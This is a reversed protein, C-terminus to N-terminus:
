FAELNWDNKGNWSLNRPINNRSFINNKEAASIPSLTRFTTNVFTNKYMCNSCLWHFHELHIYIYIYIHTHTHTDEPHELNASLVNEWTRFLPKFFNSVHHDLYLDKLVPHGPDGLHVLAMRRNWFPFFPTAEPSGWRSLFYSSLAVGWAVCRRVLGAVHIHIYTHTFFLLIYKYIISFITTYIFSCIYIYMNLYRRAIHVNYNNFTVFIPRMERDNQFDRPYWNQCSNWRKKESLRIKVYRRFEKQTAFIKAYRRVIMVNWGHCNKHCMKKSMCYTRGIERVNIRCIGVTHKTLKGSM